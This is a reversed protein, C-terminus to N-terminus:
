YKWNKKAEEILDTLAKTKEKLDATVENMMKTNRRVFVVYTFCGGTIFWAVAGIVEILWNPM